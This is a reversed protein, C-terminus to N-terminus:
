IEVWNIAVNSSVVIATNRPDTCWAAVEDAIPKSDEEKLDTVIVAKFKVGDRIIHIAAEIKTIPLGQDRDAFPM